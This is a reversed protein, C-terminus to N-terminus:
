RKGGVKIELKIENSGSSAADPAGNNNGQPLEMTGDTIKFFGIVKAGAERAKAHDLRLEENAAPIAKPQPKVETNVVTDKEFAKKNAEAKTM